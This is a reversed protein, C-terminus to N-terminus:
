DLRALERRWAESRPQDRRKVLPRVIQHVGIKWDVPPSRGNTALRLSDLAGALKLIVGEPEDVRLELEVVRAAPDTM